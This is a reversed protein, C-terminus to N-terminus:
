NFIDTMSYSNDMKVKLFTSSKLLTLRYNYFFIPKLHTMIQKIFVLSCYCAIRASSIGRKSVEEEMSLCCDYSKTTIDPLRFTQGILSSM